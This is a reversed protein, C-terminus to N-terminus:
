KNCCPWLSASLFPHPQPSYLMGQPVIPLDPEAMGEQTGKCLYSLRLTGRLEGQSVVNQGQSAILKSFRSCIPATILLQSKEGWPNLALNPSKFDSPFLCKGMATIACHPSFLHLDLGGLLLGTSSCCCPAQGGERPVHTDEMLNDARCQQSLIQSPVALADAFGLLQLLSQKHRM